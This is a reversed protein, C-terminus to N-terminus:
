WPRVTKKESLTSVSEMAGSDGGVTHAKIETQPTLTLERVSDYNVHFLGASVKGTQEVKWM